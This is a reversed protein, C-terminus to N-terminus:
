GGTFVLMLSLVCKVVFMETGDCGNLLKLKSDRGNFFVLPVFACAFQSLKDVNM